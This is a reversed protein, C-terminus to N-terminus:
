IFLRVTDEALRGKTRKAALERALTSTTQTRPRGAAWLDVYRDGVAPPAMDVFGQSATGGQATEARTEVSEGRHRIM